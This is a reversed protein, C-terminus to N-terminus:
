PFPLINNVYNKNDIIQDVMHSNFPLPITLEGSNDTSNDILEANAISCCRVSFLSFLTMVLVISIVGLKTVM